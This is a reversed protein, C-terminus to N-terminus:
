RDRSLSYPLDDESLVQAEDPTESMAFSLRGGRMLQEHGIWARTYREGDLRTERVYAAERGQGSAEIELTNGNRLYLTTKAFLPSGLVYSPHGPCLPFIGLASLIYWASMEGNDEDGPLGDPDPSYLEDLVRRVWRQTKWPQGAAAYLYLVHHVPQNSHAYQGFNASAMETMEHIELDYDAADFYPPTELMRDLKAVFAERGGMLEILGAPDHPAAWSYQWASGEIYARRDWAFEDFPELWSGDRLRGRMFGVAPDYTNRYFLARRSLERADDEIGLARAIQAVCFDNYAFEQTRAAAHAVEGAPVYGLAIYDFLGTRGYGENPDGKEFADKHMAAYAAELDFDRVGKAYADAIVVDLHTGIMCNRYGPSAWKPFYGGENAAQVWGAVIESLRDPFLLAFLPYVTRFTDWFGNDAYLVGPHIAGDYPSYHTPQGGADHEYWKRPFLLTRYLCTYFTERQREDAGEIQARGLLENWQARTEARIAEFDRAGIEQELSHLAQEVSIFSTAVRVEVQQQARTDFEVYAGQRESEGSPVQHLDATGEFFGHDAIPQSFLAVFYCAFSDPVGGSNARTYGSLMRRQPDIQIAAPGEFTHLMIRARETPPFTFRLAACRETPTLEVTTRYRWFLAKFYDPGIQMGNRRVLSSRQGADLLLPGTQPMITFHGYDAIWPSPQHTARIGQLKPARYGFLWRGEDTQPCWNTMGFPRSVLPLCNGYSFDFHSDTGQLPRVYAVLDQDHSATM